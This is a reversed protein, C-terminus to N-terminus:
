LTSKLTLSIERSVGTPYPYLQFTWLDYLFQRELFLHSELNVIIRDSSLHDGPDKMQDHVTLVV